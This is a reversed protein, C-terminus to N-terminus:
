ARDHRALGLERRAIAVRRALLLGVLRGLGRHLLLLLQVAAEVVGEASVLLAHALHIVSALRDKSEESHAAAARAARCM